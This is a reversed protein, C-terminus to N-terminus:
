FTKLFRENLKFWWISEPYPIIFVYVHKNCVTSFTKEQLITNIKKALGQEARRARAARREGELFEPLPAKGRQFGTIQSYNGYSFYRAPRKM